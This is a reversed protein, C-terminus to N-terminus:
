TNKSRLKAEIALALSIQTHDGGLIVRLEDAKMGVWTRQAPPSTYLAFQEYTEGKAQEKVRYELWKDSSKKVAHISHWKKGGVTKVAYAVPEQQVPTPMVANSIVGRGQYNGHADAWEAPQVPAPQEALAERLATVANDRYDMAEETPQWGLVELAELALKMAEDLKMAEEKKTTKPVCGKKMCHAVTECENCIM